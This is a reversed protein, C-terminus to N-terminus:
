GSFATASRAENLIRREAHVARRGPSTLFAAWWAGETGPKASSPDELGGAMMSRGCLMEFATRAGQVRSAQADAFASAGAGVSRRAISRWCPQHLRAETQAKREHETEASPIRRERTKARTASMRPPPAKPASVNDRKRTESPHSVCDSMLARDGEELFRALAYPM